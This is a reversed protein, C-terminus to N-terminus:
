REFRILMGVLIVFIIGEYPFINKSCPYEKSAFHWVENYSLNIRLSFINLFLM